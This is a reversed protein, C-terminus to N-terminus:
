WLATSSSHLLSRSHKKKKKEKKESVGKRREGRKRENVASACVSGSERKWCVFVRQRGAYQLRIGFTSLAGDATHLLCIAYGYEGTSHVADTGEGAGNRFRVDRTSVASIATSGSSSSM